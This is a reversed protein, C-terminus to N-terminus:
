LLFERMRVPRKVANTFGENFKFILPRSDRELTTTKWGASDTSQSGKSNAKKFRDFFSTSSRSPKKPNGSSKLKVNSLARTSSDMIPSTASDSPVCQGSNIMSKQNGIINGSFAAAHNIKVSQVASEREVLYMNQKNCGDTLHVSRSAQLIKRKEVEHVLVQKVALPLAHHGSSYGKFNIFEHIPPDVSLSAADLAAENEQKCSLHDSKINKYTMSYSVMTSVLQALDNKERETLLHLAM